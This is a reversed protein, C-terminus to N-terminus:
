KAATIAAAGARDPRLFFYIPFDVYFIRKTELFFLCCFQDPNLFFAIKNKVRAAPKGSAMRQIGAPEGSPSCKSEAPKRSAVRQGKRPCDTPMGSAMRQNEM